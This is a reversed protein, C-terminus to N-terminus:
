RRAFRLARALDRVADDPLKAVAKVVEARVADVPLRAVEDGVLTALDVALADALRMLVELSPNGVGRELEGLYKPNLNATEGLADQTLGRGKRLKRLHEGFSHMPDAMGRNDRDPRQRQVTQIM